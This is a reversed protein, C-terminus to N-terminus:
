LLEKCKEILDEFNKYFLDCVEENPFALVYNNDVSTTRFFRGNSNLIIYKVKDFDSWNPKWPKGLGMQEGAIRWYADRCYILNRFNQLLNDIEDEYDSIEVDCGKYSFDTFLHDAKCGLLKCCEEYTKPYQLQKKVYEVLMGNDVLTIKGILYGNPPLIKNGDITVETALKDDDDLPMRLEKYQREEMSEKEGFLRIDITNSATDFKTKEKM